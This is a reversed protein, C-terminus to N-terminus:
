IKNLQLIKHQKSGTCSVFHRCTVKLKIQNSVNNLVKIRDAAILTKIYGIGKTKTHGM